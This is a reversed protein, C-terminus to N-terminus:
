KDLQTYLKAQFFTPIYIRWSTRHDSAQIKALGKEMNRYTQYLPLYQLGARKMPLGNRILMQTSVVSLSTYDTVWHM